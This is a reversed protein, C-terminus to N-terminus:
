DSDENASETERSCKPCSTKVVSHAKCVFEKCTDCRITTNKNKSRGCTVCRGKRKLDPEAENAVEETSKYKALSAKIDLPLSTIRAREVLFPKMLSMSLNKLFVRRKLKLNNANSHYLILANIGAMDMISFFIVLPWRKTIRKVSYSGCMQDVTDVAGKTANYDLNIEPKKTEEDIEGSDHM